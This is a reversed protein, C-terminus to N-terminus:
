RRPAELVKAADLSEQRLRRAEEARAAQLQKVNAAATALQQAVMIDIANGVADSENNPKTFQPYKLM